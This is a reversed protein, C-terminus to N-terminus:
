HPLSSVFLQISAYKSNIINTLGDHLAPIFLLLILIITASTFVIMGVQSERLSEDIDHLRAYLRITFVVLVIVVIAIVLAATLEFIGNIICQTAYAKIVIPAAIGIKHSLAKLIPTIQNINNM